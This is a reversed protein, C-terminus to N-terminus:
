WAATNKFEPQYSRSISGGVSTKMGAFRSGGVPSSVRPKMMVGMATKTALPLMSQALPAAYGPMINMAQGLYGAALAGFRFWTSWKQTTETRGREADNREALEDVVGAGVGVIVSSVEIRM